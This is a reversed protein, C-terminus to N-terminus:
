LQKWLSTSIGVVRTSSYEGGVQHPALVFRGEVRLGGTMLFSTGQQGWSSSVNHTGEIKLALCFTLACNNPMSLWLNNVLTYHRPLVAGRMHLHGGHASSYAGIEASVSSRLQTIRHHCIACLAEGSGCHILRDPKISLSVQAQAKRSEPIVPADRHTLYRCRHMLYSNGTTPFCRSWRAASCCRIPLCSALGGTVAYNCTLCLSPSPVLWIVEDLAIQTIIIGIASHICVERPTFLSPLCYEATLEYGNKNSPKHSDIPRCILLDEKTTM